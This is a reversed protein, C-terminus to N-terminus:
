THKFYQSIIKKEGRQLIEALTSPSISLLNSLKKITTKKPIDYYGKKLAIEVIDNQRKTLIRNQTLSSSKVLEVECDKARLEKMLATLAGKKGVILTWEVDNNGASRGSILYCDSNGLVKCAPCENNVLSAYTGGDPSKCTNINSIGPYNGIEEIFYKVEEEEGNITILWRCGYQALPMCNMKNISFGFRNAIDLLWKNPLTVKLVVERM